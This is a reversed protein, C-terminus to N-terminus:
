CLFLALVCNLTRFLCVATFISQASLLYFRRESFALPQTHTRAEIHTDTHTYGIYGMYTTINQYLKGGM